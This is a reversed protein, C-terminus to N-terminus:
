SSHHERKKFASVSKINWCPNYVKWFLKTSASGIEPEDDDIETMDDYDTDGMADEEDQILCTLTFIPM